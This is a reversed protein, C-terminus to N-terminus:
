WDISIRRTYTSQMEDPADGPLDVNHITALNSKRKLCLNPKYKVHTSSYVVQGM